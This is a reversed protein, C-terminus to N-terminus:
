DTLTEIVTYYLDFYKFGKSKVQPKTQLMKLFILGELSNKSIYRAGKSFPDQESHFINSQRM